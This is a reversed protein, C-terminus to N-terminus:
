GLAGLESLRVPFRDVAPVVNEECVLVGDMEMAASDITRRTM